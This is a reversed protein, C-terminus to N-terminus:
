DTAGDRKQSPLDFNHELMAQFCNQKLHQLFEQEEVSMYEKIITYGKQGIYTAIEDDQMILILVTIINLSNKNLKYILFYVIIIYPFTKLIELM